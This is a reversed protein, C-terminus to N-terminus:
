MEDFLSIQKFDSVRFIAKELKQDNQVASGDRVFEEFKLYEKGVEPKTRHGRM